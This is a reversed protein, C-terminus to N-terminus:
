SYQGPVPFLRIPNGIPNGMHNGMHSKQGAPPVYMRVWPKNQSKQGAPPVYMPVGSKGIWDIWDIWHCEWGHIMDHIM